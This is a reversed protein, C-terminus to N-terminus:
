VGPDLEHLVEVQEHPMSLHMAIQITKQIM